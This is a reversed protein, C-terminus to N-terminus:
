PRPAPIEPRSPPGTHHGPSPAPKSAFLGAVTHFGNALLTFSGGQAAAGVMVFPPFMPDM